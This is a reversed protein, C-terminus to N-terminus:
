APPKRANVDTTEANPSSMDLETLDDRLGELVMEVDDMSYTVLSTNAGEAALLEHYADITLEEGLLQEESMELTIVPKGDYLGRTLARRASVLQRRTQRLQRQHEMMTLKMALSEALVDLRRRGDRMQQYQEHILGARHRARLYQAAAERARARQDARLAARARALLRAAQREEEARLFALRREEASCRQIEERADMLRLETDAIMRELLRDAVIGADRPLRLLRRVRQFFTM